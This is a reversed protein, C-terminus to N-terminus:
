CGERTKKSVLENFFIVMIEESELDLLKSILKIDSAKFVVEGKLKKYITSASIPQGAATMESALWEVNKGKLKLKSHILNSEMKSGRKVGKLTKNSVQLIDNQSFVTM